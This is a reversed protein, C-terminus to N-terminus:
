ATMDVVFRHRVDDRALRDLSEVIQDARV